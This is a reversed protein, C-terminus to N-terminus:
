APSSLSVCGYPWSFYLFMVHPNYLFASEGFKDVFNMTPLLDNLIKIVAEVVM